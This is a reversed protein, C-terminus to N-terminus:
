MTCLQGLLHLGYAVAFEQAYNQLIRHPTRLRYQVNLAEAVYGPKQRIILDPLHM